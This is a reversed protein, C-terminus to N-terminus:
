FQYGLSIAYIWPDIEATGIKEKGEIGPGALLVDSSIDMWRVDFNILAHSGIKWDAGLQAAVGFSDDLILKSVEDDVYDPHLNTSFFTTWNMGLGAYPQFASDPAFHYQFSFTPPIQKTDGVTATAEFEAPIQPIAQNVITLNADIDHKFPLAALVDFAWNENIMYTGSLTMGTGDQIDVTAAVEGVIDDQFSFDLNGSKPQITGVGGRLVFTGPEYALAPSAVLALIGAAILLIKYTKM